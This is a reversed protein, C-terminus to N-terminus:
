NELGEIIRIEKIEEKMKELNIRVPHEKDNLRDFVMKCIKMKQEDSMSDTFEPLEGLHRIIERNHKKLLEPFYLEYVMGDIIQIFYSPMLLDKTEIHKQSKIFLIYNVITEFKIEDAKNIPFQLPLKKLHVGKIYPFVDPNTIMKKNFYYELLKSNLIGTIIKLNAAINKKPYLNYISQDTYYQETDLAAILRNGTKRVIIKEKKLYVTEDTNSHLQEKLFNIFLNEPKIEYKEIHKGQLYKKHNTDLKSHSLFKKIGNAVIGVYVELYDDIFGCKYKISDLIENEKNTAKLNIVYGNEKDDWEAQTYIKFEDFFSFNLNNKRIVTTELNKSFKNQVFLIISDTVAEFVKNSFSVIQSIHYGTILYERIKKLYENQLITSPIIFSLIGNNMLLNVSKDTFLAFSNVKYEASNPYLEILKKVESDSINIIEKGKFTIYPPNGIVIDFGGNGNVLYPNLVEPFDLKWDFHNFPEDPNNLLNKLKGVMNDFGKIQLERDTNHKIDAATPMFGGKQETKNIYLEKNFSLQNILLEIKLNRIEAQLKKKNKSNPSFYQKQKDAVEVLLRQVNKVYENAKGVSQKREWDIEVIEGDFKSILSDGVVIKYDLNPLPTPKEEDVVLSLWFRLRAIDVAGKEIDVGYISNQIINLKTEAPKWEKGTEYAILEKISFIEQLLGMPFAGSGIAPDCIKVNDIKESILKIEPESFCSADKYKILLAIKEGWLNGEQPPTGKLAPHNFLMEMVRDLNKMVDEVPIHIVTLGLSELYRDREADYEAKGDHSSGDIEIVVNCNTCYFDVIYNGIIKQRDFDFGKLQKNKVRNWFLVEPLNGAKRLERAKEKLNPNYPLEFYNKSARKVAGDPQSQWGGEPFDVVGDKPCGEVPPSNKLYETLSEQCMYHVIEKPTYFAGKDKNDELLNEFIHGLMEPDVAVTHDDPSDEYVTFNFSDLFDLFGRAYGNSKATLIADEFDPNHFLKAPFTLVHEDFEEKDFLGGNLFPVKVTKGDPMKFDDNAREKNLTDFFLVTLWNSYFTDNGGSLHFLQKIFDPMGDTYHTDSAGLWGKKQVFYLFVIRGLLKKVFDRIPKSAKDKEKKTASAPFTINFVSKRYNSEQLYDCFNQYHLTYEEFFTKSLKEVSFANILTQFTIEKETSLTEFREAATKCTESPGLLFTYRKANTTKEKVGKDTLVSDKAVLTLRWVNKNAPAVFNILAAQGATLLKRVYQQIAVKSQEIRVKPQLLVEYCTIETGDDLQIKGYIWVKDIVALESDNPTVLAPVLSSNLTFGSGFVPSLVERSFLVRDYPKHLANQLQIRYAAM